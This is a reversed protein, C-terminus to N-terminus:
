LAGAIGEDVSTTYFSIPFQPAEDEVNIVDVHLTVVNSRRPDGNDRAEVSLEHEQGMEYDVDGSVKVVGSTTNITFLGPSLFSHNPCGLSVPLPAESSSGELRYSIQGNTGLDGDTASVIAVTTGMAVNEMLSTNYLSQSFIPRNDNVDRLLVTM